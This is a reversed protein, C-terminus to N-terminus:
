LDGAEERWATMRAMAAARHQALRREDEAAERADAALMDARTPYAFMLFEPRALASPPIDAGHTKDDWVNCWRHAGMINFDVYGGNKSPAGGNGVFHAVDFDGRTMDEGCTACVGGQREWVIVRLGNRECGYKAHPGAPGGGIPKGDATRWAHGEGAMNRLTAMYGALFRIAARQADTRTATFTNRM